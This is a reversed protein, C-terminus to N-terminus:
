ARMIEPALPFSHNKNAPIFILSQYPARKLPRTASQSEAVDASLSPHAIVM